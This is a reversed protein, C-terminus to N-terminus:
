RSNILSIQRKRKGMGNRKRKRRRRRRLAKVSVKRLHEACLVMVVRICEPTSYKYLQDTKKVKLQQIKVQIPLRKYYNNERLTDALDQCDTTIPDMGVLWITTIADPAQVDKVILQMQDNEFKYKVDCNALDTIPISHGIFFNIYLCMQSCVIVWDKYRKFEPTSAM